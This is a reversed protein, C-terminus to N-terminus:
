IDCSIQWGLYLSYLLWVMTYFSLLYCNIFLYMYDSTATNKRIETRRWRKFYTNCIIRSRSYQLHVSFYVTKNIYSITPKNFHRRTPLRWLHIREGVSRRITVTVHTPTVSVLGLLWPLWYAPYPMLRWGANYQSSVRCIRRIFGTLAKLSRLSITSIKRRSNKALRIACCWNSLVTSRQFM